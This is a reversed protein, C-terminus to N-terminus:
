LRHPQEILQSTLIYYLWHKSSANNQKMFQQLNHEGCMITRPGIKPSGTQLSWWLALWLLNEKYPRGVGCLLRRDQFTGGINQYNNSRDVSEVWRWRPPVANNTVFMHVTGELGQDGMRMVWRAKWLLFVFRPTPVICVFVFKKTHLLCFWSPCLLYLKPLAMSIGPDVKKLVHYSERM